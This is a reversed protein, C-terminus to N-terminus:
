LLSINYTSITLNSNECDDDHNEKWIQNYPNVFKKTIIILQGDYVEFYSVWHDKDCIEINKIFEGDLKYLSIVNERLGFIIDNSIKMKHYNFEFLKTLIDTTPDYKSIWDDICLIIEDNYIECSSIDTSHLNEFKNTWNPVEGSDNYTTFITSQKDDKQEFCDNNNYTNTKSNFIFLGTEYEFTYSHFIYFIDDKKCFEITNGDTESIMYPYNSTKACKKNKFDLAISWSTHDYIESISELQNYEVLPLRELNTFEKTLINFTNMCIKNEDYWNHLGIILENYQFHIVNLDYYFSDKKKVKYSYNM